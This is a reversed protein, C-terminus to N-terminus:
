KEVEEVISCIAEALKELKRCYMLADAIKNRVEYVPNVNRSVEMQHAFGFFVMLAQEIKQRPLWFRAWCYFKGNLLYAAEKHKTAKSYDDNLELGAIEALKENTM